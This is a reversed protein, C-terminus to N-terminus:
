YSTIIQSLYLREKTSVWTEKLGHDSLIFRATIDFWVYCFIYRNHLSYVVSEKRYAMYSCSLSERQGLPRLFLKHFM